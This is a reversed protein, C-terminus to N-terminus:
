KKVLTKGEVRTGCKRKGSMLMPRQGGQEQRAIAAAEVTHTLYLSTHTSTLHRHASPPSGCTRPSHRQWQGGRGSVGGSFSGLRGRASLLPLGRWVVSGWSVGGDRLYSLLFVFPLESFSRLYDVLMSRNQFQILMAKNAVSLHVVCKVASLNLLPQIHLSM